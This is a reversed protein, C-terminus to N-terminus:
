RAGEGTLVVGITKIMLYLDFLFSRRYVYYRDLAAAEDFGVWGRGFVQWVGTLGPKVKFRGGRWGSFFAAEYPLCPRPGVLSMHGTLVNWFQPLEDLSYKRLIRGISTVREEDIVKMPANTSSSNQKGEMYDCFEKYRREFAATDSVVRMSRFKRWIFRRKGKGIVHTKYFVPGPSTAKVLIALSIFLPSLFILALLTFVIDRLRFFLGYREEPHKEILLWRQGGISVGLQDLLGELLPSRVWVQGGRELARDVNQWLEEGNGSTDEIYNINGTLGKTLECEEATEISM